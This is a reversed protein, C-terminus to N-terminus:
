KVAREDLPRSSPNDALLSRLREAVENLDTVCPVSHGPTVLMWRPAGHAIAAVAFFAWTQSSSLPSVWAAVRLTVDRYDAYTAMPILANAGVVLDRVPELADRIGDWPEPASTDLEEIQSEATVVEADDVDVRFDPLQLNSGLLDESERARRALKEYARTAFASGDNPWWVEISDHPSDMRDVRGVRQEAVRLTTPLDLHVLCSAGQLNLGENMSDSCLAIAQGESNPAFLGIVRHRQSRATSTAVLVEAGHTNSKALMAELVALTIPHRDFALVRGHRGSLRALLKCKTEERAPSLTAVEAEIAEYHGRENACAKVWLEADTLWPDVECALKIEPPGETALRDLKAKLDGTDTPKFRNDLGFREAAVKTGAVHEVLAARSSRLGELVHHAALGQASTLRFQLWNDDSYIRQLGLPVALSRELQALGLLAKAHLRVRTAAVEDEQTEGTPYIKPNHTPYRCVRGSTPHVYAGPDREVAENIQRKTRRVTFRQIEKRLASIEDPSLLAPAGRPKDLRNLVSLTADDFNDPGLLGVLNLLDSAGRSIPTATFLLVNDALSDRVQQTRKSSQSLFNHGEDLALVQAGRM